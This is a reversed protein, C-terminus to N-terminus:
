DEFVYGLPKALPALPLGTAAGIISLSDRLAAKKQRVTADDDFMAFPKTKLGKELGAAAPSMSLRDDSYSETFRSLFLNGLQGAVPLMATAEQAQSLFLTEMVDDLYGDDDDGDWDGRMTKSIAKALIAPIALGFLYVAFLRASKASLGTESRVTKVFETGLLNAKMSFYSSFMTFLKSFSNGAEYRAIHEAGFAGQTLRVAEDAQQVAEAESMNKDSALAQDYAGVWTIINVPNQIAKQIFQGHKDTFAKVKQFTNPNTTIEDIDQLMDQVQADLTHRMFASKEMVDASTQRPSRLYDWTASRLYKGGVKTRAVSLGTINQLANSINGVMFQMGTNRRIARLIKDITPDGISQETKQRVTRDLWPVLMGRLAKPDHARLEAKFEGDNLLRMMENVRPKIHTFRLVEDIHKTILNMNMLLPQAYGASRAKTFGTYTSPFMYGQNFGLEENKALSVEGADVITPDTKAPVYGGEYEGWPTAFSDHSIEKFFHGYMEKHAKQAGPKISEFLNWVSQVFDYDKKTLIGERWMRAEFQRWRSADLQGDVAEGWGRGVLLKMLNSENGRHLLAGLLEAKNKFEYGNLEHAIIPKTDFTDKAEKAIALYERIRQIREERYTTVADNIPRWIYKKFPAGMADAWAEVRRLAAKIGLLSVKSNELKDLQAKMGMGKYKQGIEKLRETLAAKIEALDVKRGEIEMTKTAKSLDWLSDVAKAMETFQEFSVKKFNKANDTAQEVLANVAQYVDPDYQQLQKLFAGARKDYDGIEYSGLIARAANILDVDRSKGFSADSKKFKRWDDMKDQTFQRAKQAALYREHNIAERLKADFAGGIDGKNLLTAADKAARREAMAWMSPVIAEVNLRGISREADSRLKEQSPMRRSIARNLGKLTSLKESGLFELEMRLLKARDEGHLANEAEQKAEQQTMPEGHLQRMREDALRDIVAERPEANMIADLLQLGSEYDFLGAAVDPHMGDAAYVYKPVTEPVDNTPSTILDLVDRKRLKFREQGPPFAGALLPEGNPLKGTKFLTLAKYVKQEDVEAAIEPLMAEREQKWWKQEERLVDAMVRKIFRDKVADQSEKIAQAYKAGQEVTLLGSDVAKQVDPILAVAAQEAQASEIQDESALLRDMVGRVEPTLNVDKFYEKMERYIATLWERFRFFAKRLEKSPAKGEMLYQEFGKAWREHHETQIESRDKVGLWDIITQYDQKIEATADPRAALDGLTELYFHGVEHLFTSRDKGEFLDISMERNKGIRIRGRPGNESPQEYSTINVDKDDFIVYNRNGQKVKRSAGDFFKIGPIGLSLLSKSVEEMPSMESGDPNVPKIVGLPGEDAIKVLAGYLEGGTIAVSSFGDSVDEGDRDLEDLILGKIADPIKELADLVRQNQDHVAEDHDLYQEDEPIEVTYLRGDDKSFLDSTKVGYKKELLELSPFMGDGNLNIANFPDAGAELREALEFTVNAQRSLDDNETYKVGDETTKWEKSAALEQYRQRLRTALEGSLKEHAVKLKYGATLKKRYFKAVDKNGAFYMGWGYVQAGEGSGMKQTTFKDFKHPSGHYAPQEFQAEGTQTPAEQRKVELGYEKFLEFPDIGSRQGFRKFAAEIFQGYTKAERKFGAAGIANEIVERVRAAGAAFVEDKAKQEATKEVKVRQAEEQKQISEALKVLEETERASLDSADRRAENQMFAREGDEMTAYKALPIQLDGGSELAKTMQEGGGTLKVLHEVPDINQSQLYEAYPQAQVYLFEGASGAVTESIVKEVEQPNSEMLKIKGVAKDIEKLTTQTTESNRRRLALQATPGPIGMLASGRLTESFIGMLRDVVEARKAGEFEGSSAAKAVEEGLINIGEQMVETATEGAVSKAWEKGAALAAKKFTPMVVADKVSEMVMRRVIPKFPAAFFKFGVMELGANISGIFMAATKRVGEDLKEGNKGTIEGLEVYANGGETVVSDEAMGLTFGLGAGASTGVGPLVSGAAAGTAAYKASSGASGTMQGVIKAFPFLWQSAFDGGEPQQALEKQLQERRAKTEPNVGKSFEEFGVDGLQRTQEGRKIGVSFAAAAREAFSTKSTDGSMFKENRRFEKYLQEAHEDELEAMTKQRPLEMLPADAPYNKQDEFEKAARRKAEPMIIEIAKFDSTPKYVPTVMGKSLKEIHEILQLDERGAALRYPDKAFNATAPAERQLREYEGAALRTQDQKTQELNRFVTGLPLGSQLGLRLTEAAQNPPIKSSLYDSGGLQGSAQERMRKRFLEHEDEQQEENGLM